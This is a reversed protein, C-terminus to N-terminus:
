STERAGPSIRAISEYVKARSIGLRRALETPGLGGALAAAVAHGREDALIGKTAEILAPARRAREVPDLGDFGDLEARLGDLTTPRRWVAPDPHTM